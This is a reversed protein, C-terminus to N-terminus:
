ENEVGIEKLYEKLEEDSNCVRVPRRNIWIGYSKEEGDPLFFTQKVIKLKM